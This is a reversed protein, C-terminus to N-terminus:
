FIWYDSAANVTTPPRSCRDVTLSSRQQQAQRVLGAQVRDVSFAAEHDKEPWAPWNWYQQEQQQQAMTAVTAQQQQQQMTTTARAPPAATDEEARDDHRRLAAGEAQRILNAEVHQVSTIRNDLLVEIHVHKFPQFWYDESEQQHEDHHHHHAQKVQKNESLQQSAQVLNAVIHNASFLLDNTNINSPHNSCSSSPLKTPEQKPQNTRKPEETAAPWEWYSYSDVNIDAQPKTTAVLEPPKVTAVPAARLVKLSAIHNHTVDFHAKRNPPM